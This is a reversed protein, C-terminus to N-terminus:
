FVRDARMSAVLIAIGLYIVGGLAIAAVEMKLVDMLWWGLLPGCAAGFDMATIYYRFHGSGLQSVAGTVGAQLATGMAFFLITLVVVLFINNASAALILAAGGIAMFGVVTSRIGFRDSLGGLWPAALSDLVYRVALVTGTLTAASITATTTGLRDLLVAGLSAMVLGPGVVGLAFGIVPYLGLKGMTKSTPMATRIFMPRSPLRAKVGIPIALLSVLAISLIANSFGFLDVLLAGGFLGVVSGLRSIGNYFGMTRGSINDPVDQMIELVGIHRIFSWALGWLLRAALLLSFLSAFIYLATTLSGLLLAGVFLVDSRFRQVMHHAFHNTILRVWRNVSLILGVQIPLLGLEHFYVPLVSYLVQDGLLSFATAIGVFAVKKSPNNMSM